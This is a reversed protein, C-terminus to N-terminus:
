IQDKTTKLKHMAHRIAERLPEPVVRLSEWPLGCYKACDRLEDVPVPLIGTDLYVLKKHMDGMLSSANLQNLGLEVSFIHRWRRAWEPLLFFAGEHSLRRYEDSGLIIEYCNNGQVRVVGPKETMAAMHVCCDGYILLIKHGNRIEEKILVDLKNALKDPKMHLMSGLFHIESEPWDDKMLVMVDHKLVACCIVVISQNADETM